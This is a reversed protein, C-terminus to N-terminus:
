FRVVTSFLFDRINKALNAAVDIQVRNKVV